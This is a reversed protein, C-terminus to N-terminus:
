ESALLIKSWLLSIKKWVFDYRNELSITQLEKRFVLDLCELSYITSWLLSRELFMITLIILILNRRTSQSRTALLQTIRNVTLAPCLSRFIVRIAVRVRAYRVVRIRFSQKACKKRYKVFVLNVLSRFRKWASEVVVMKRISNKM